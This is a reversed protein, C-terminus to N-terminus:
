SGSTGERWARLTARWPLSTRRCTSAVAAPVPSLSLTRNRIWLGFTLSVGAVVTTTPVSTYGKKM